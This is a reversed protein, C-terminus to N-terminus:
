FLISRALNAHLIWPEQHLYLIELQSDLVKQSADIELLAQAFGAQGAKKVQALRYLQESKMLDVLIYIEGKDARLRDNSKSGAYKFADMITRDGDGDIDQPKRLWEFFFYLFINASWNDLTLDRKIDLGQDDKEVVFGSIPPTISIPLSLSLNLNTAGMLVLKPDSAADLYNFIGGYCQGVIAIGVQLGSIQRISDIFVKPSIHQSNTPIGGEFGHGTTIVFAYDKCKIKPLESAFDITAFINTTSKFFPEIELSLQPHDAFVYIQTDPVGIKRLSDIGLIIDHVHRAETEGSVFIWTSETPNIPHKEFQPAM